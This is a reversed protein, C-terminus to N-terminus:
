IVFKSLVELVGDRDVSGVVLDAIEIVDPIANGMAVKFGCAM